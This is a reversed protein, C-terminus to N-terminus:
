TKFELPRRSHKDDTSSLRTDSGTFSPSTARVPNSLSHFLSCVSNSPNISAPRARPVFNFHPAKFSPALAAEGEVVM